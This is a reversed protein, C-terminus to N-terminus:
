KIGLDKLDYYYTFEIAGVEILAVGYYECRMLDKCIYAESEEEDDLNFIETLYNGLAAQENEAEVIEFQPENDDNNLLLIFKKM